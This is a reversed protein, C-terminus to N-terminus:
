EEAPWSPEIDKIKNLARTAQADVSGQSNRIFMATAGAQAVAIDGVALRQYISSNTTGGYHLEMLVNASDRAGKGDSASEKRNTPVYAFEARKYGLVTEVGAGQPAQGVALGITTGTATVVSNGGTATCAIAPISLAFMLLLNKTM